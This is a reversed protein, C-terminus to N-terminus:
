GVCRIRLYNNFGIKYKNRFDNIGYAQGKFAITNDYKVAEYTYLVKIPEPKELGFSNWDISDINYEGWLAITDNCDTHTYKVCVMIKNSNPIAETKLIECPTLNAYNGYTGLEVTRAINKVLM